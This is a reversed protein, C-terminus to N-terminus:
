AALKRLEREAEMSAITKPLVLSTERLRHDYTERWHAVLWDTADDVLLASDDASYIRVVHPKLAISRGPPHRHVRGSHWAPHAGCKKCWAVRKESYREYRVRVAQRLRPWREHMVHLLRELEQYAPHNWAVCMFSTPEGTGDVDDYIGECVDRYHWLLREIQERRNM